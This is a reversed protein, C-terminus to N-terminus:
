AINNEEDNIQQLIVLLVLFFAQGIQLEIPTEGIFNAFLILYFTLFLFHRYRRAYLLPYLLATMFVVGGVIGTASLELLLQNHPTLWDKESMHAYDSKYIAVAQEWYDGAGTGLYPYEKFLRWGIELSVLRRYDTSRHEKDQQQYMEMDWRLYNVRNKFSPMYYYASFPTMLLFILMALAWPRTNSQRLLLGLLALLVVYVGLIGSRVALFHIFVFLYLAALGYLLREGRFKKWLRINKYGLYAAIMFAISLFWSYRVYVIPTHIISGQSYITHIHQYHQIYYVIVPLTSVLSIALFWVLLGYLYRLPLRPLLSIAFPIFLFPLRIRVQELGAEFNESILLGSVIYVLLIGSFFFWTRNKYFRKLKETITGRIGFVAYVFMLVTGISIVARSYYVGFLLAALLFVYVKQHISLPVFLEQQM